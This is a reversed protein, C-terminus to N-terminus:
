ILREAEENTTYIDNVIVEKKAEEATVTEAFHLKRYTQTNLTAKCYANYPPPLPLGIKLESLCLRGAGKAMIRFDHMLAFILGGAYAHGNIVAM